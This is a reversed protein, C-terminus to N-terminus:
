SSPGPFLLLVKNNNNIDKNKQNNQLQKIYQEQYRIIINNMNKQNTEQKFLTQIENIIPEIQNDAIEILHKQENFFHICNVDIKEM